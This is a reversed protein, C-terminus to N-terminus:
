GEEGMARACLHESAWPRNDLRLPALGKEGAEGVAFGAEVRLPPLSALPGVRAAEGEARVMLGFWEAGGVRVPAIASLPLHLEGTVSGKDGPQILILRQQDEGGEASPALGTAAMALTICLPGLPEEAANDLVLRYRLVAQSLTLTLRTPELSLRLADPPLPAAEPEEEIHAFLASPQFGRAVPAAVVPEVVPEAAPEPEPEPVPPLKPARIAAEEEAKAPVPLPRPKPPARKPPRPPKTAKAKRPPKTPAVQARAKAARRAAVRRLLGIVLALGGLGAALGAALMLPRMEEGAALPDAAASPMAGPEDPVVVPDPASRAPSPLAPSPRAPGHPDPGPLAPSAVSAVPAPAAGAGATEGATEGAKAVLRKAQPTPQVPAQKGKGVAATSAAAKIVPQPTITPAPSPRPQAWVDVSQAWGAGPWMVVGGLAVGSLAVGSLALRCCLALFSPM